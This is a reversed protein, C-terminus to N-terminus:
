GAILLKIDLNRFTFYELSNVFVNRRVLCSSICVVRCNRCRYVCGSRSFGCGCRSKHVIGRRSLVYSSRSVM